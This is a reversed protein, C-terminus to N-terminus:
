IMCNYFKLAKILSFLLKSLLFWQRFKFPIRLYLILGLNNRTTDVRIFNNVDKTCRRTLNKLKLQINDVFRDRRKVYLM